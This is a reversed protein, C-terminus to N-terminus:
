SVASGFAAILWLLGTSSAVVIGVLRKTGLGFPAAGLAVASFALGCRISAAEVPNGPFFRMWHFLWAFLLIFYLLQSCSVLVIATSGWKDAIASKADEWLAFGIGYLNGCSVLLLLIAFVSFQSQPHM